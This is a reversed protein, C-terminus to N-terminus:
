TASQPAHDLIAVGAREAIRVDEDVPVVALPELDLFDSVRRVDDEGTAKSVVLSVRAEPRAGAIRIIRRATMMSQCTAEAVVLFHNAYPAWDNALQRGGAPMDGLIVWDRFAKAHELRHVTLYFANVSADHQAWTGVAQKGIQFLRVGDPADISYRQVARVAGVGAVYRWRRNEGREVAAILAPVEPPEVGLVFSMGPLPDSDLALVRRGRRALVRALTGSLLSKGVGGKGAVALLM